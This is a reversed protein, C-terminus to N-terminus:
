NEELEITYGGWNKWKFQISPVGTSTVKTGILEPDDCVKEKFCKVFREYKKKFSDSTGDAINGISPADFEVNGIKGTLYGANMLKYQIYYDEAGVIRTDRYNGVSIISPIHLLCCQIIASKNIRINNGHSFRDYARHNPSSLVINYQKAQEYWLKLARNEIRPSTKSGHLIRLSNWGSGDPKKGLKEIKAIDDDFMFAWTYGYKHLWYVLYRRTMGLEEISKDITVLEFGWDKLYKYDPLQERRIFVFKELDIEKLKEFIKANPNNYSPISIVPKM